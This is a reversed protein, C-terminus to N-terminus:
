AESLESTSKLGRNMFLLDLGELLLTNMSVREDFALQRLQEYANHPIYTPLQRRSKAAKSTTKVPTQLLEDTPIATAGENAFEDLTRRTKKTM